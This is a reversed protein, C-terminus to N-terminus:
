ARPPAPPEHPPREGAAAVAQLAGAGMAAVPLAIRALVLGAARFQEVSEATMSRTGWLAVEGDALSPLETLEVTPAGAPRLGHTCATFCTYEYLKEADALTARDGVEWFVLDGGELTCQDPLFM